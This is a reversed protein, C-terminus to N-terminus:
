KDQKSYLRQSRYYEANPNANQLIATSKAKDESVKANHALTDILNGTGNGVIGAVGGKALLGAAAAQVYRGPGGGLGEKSVLDHGIAQLAAGLISNKTALSNGIMKSASSMAPALYDTVMYKKIPTGFLEENGPTFKQWDKTPDVGTGLKKTASLADGLGGSEIASLFENGLPSNKIGDIDGKQFKSILDDITKSAFRKVIEAEVSM